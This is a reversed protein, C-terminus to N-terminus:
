NVPNLRFVWRIQFADAHAAVHSHICGDRRASGDFASGYGPSVRNETLSGKLGNPLPLVLGRTRSSFYLQGKM